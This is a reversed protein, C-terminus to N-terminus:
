IGVHPINLLIFFSNKKNFLLYFAASISNLRVVKGSSKDTITSQKGCDYVDESRKHQFHLLAFHLIIDVFPPFESFVVSWLKCQM